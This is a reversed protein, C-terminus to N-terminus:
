KEGVERGQVFLVGQESGNLIEEESARGRIPVLCVAGGEKENYKSFSQKLQDFVSLDNNLDQM